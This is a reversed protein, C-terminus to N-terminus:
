EGRRAYALRSSSINPPGWPPCRGQWGVLGVVWGVPAAAQCGGAPRASSRSRRQATTGPSGAPKAARGRSTLKVVALRVAKNLRRRDRGRSRRAPSGLRDAPVSTLRAGCRVGGRGGAQFAWAAQQRAASRLAAMREANAKAHQGAAGGHSKGVRLRVAINLRRRDRGRSTRPPSSLRDAPVGHQAMAVVAAQRHLLSGYSPSFCGEAAWRDAYAAGRSQWVWRAELGAVVVFRAGICPRSLPTPKM